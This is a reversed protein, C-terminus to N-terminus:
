NWCPYTIVHETFHPTFNNIWEWVEVTSGNLNPFPYIIEDWVNYHIYNSIWTPNFTIYTLLLPEQYATHVRCGRLHFTDTSVYSSWFTVAVEYRDLNGQINGPSGNFILPAGLFIWPSLHAVESGYESTTTLTKLWRKVQAAQRIYKCINDVRKDLHTYADQIYVM